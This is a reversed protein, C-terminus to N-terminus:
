IVNGNSDLQFGSESDPVQSPTGYRDIKYTGLIFSSRFNWFYVNGVNDNSAAFYWRVTQGYLTATAPITALPRIESPTVLLLRVGNIGNDVTALVIGVNSICAAICGYWGLGGLTYEELMPILSETVYTGDLSHWTVRAEYPPTSKRAAIVPVLNVGDCLNKADFVDLSSGWYWGGNNIQHTGLRYEIGKVMMLEVTYTMTSRIWNNNNFRRGLMPAPSVLVVATDNGSDVEEYKPSRATRHSKIWVSKKWYPSTGRPVRYKFWNNVPRVVPPELTSIRLSSSPVLWSRYIWSLLARCAQIDAEGTIEGNISIFVPQGDKKDVPRLLTFVHRHWRLWKDTYVGANVEGYHECGGETTMGDLYIPITPVKTDDPYAYNRPGSFPLHGPLNILATDSVQPCPKWYNQNFIGARIQSENDKVFSSPLVDGFVERRWKALYEAAALADRKQKPQMPRVNITVAGKKNCTITAGSIDVHGAEMLELLKQYLPSNKDLGILKM